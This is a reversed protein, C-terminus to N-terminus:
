VAALLRIDHLLANVAGLTFDLAAKDTLKGETVKEGVSAIAVHPYAVPRAGAGILAERVPAQARVGGTTGPSSTVILTPKGKIAGKAYPRSAWDIANKVVGPISFNYEPSILIVGDAAAIAARLAAAGEPPTATDLDQNYLPVDNLTFVTVDATGALADKLGEAIATSFAGARLSGSIALIKPTSM